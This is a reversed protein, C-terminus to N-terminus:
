LWKRIITKSVCSVSIFDELETQNTYKTTDVAIESFGNLRATSKALINKTSVHAGGRPTLLNKVGQLKEMYNEQKESIRNM